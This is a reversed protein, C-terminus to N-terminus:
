AVVCQERLRAIESDELGLEQSLVEDTHEGLLPPRVLPVASEPLRISPSMLTVEGAEPHSVTQFFGRTRLHPDTFIETTDFIASVPVDKTALEHMVQYKDRAMTWEEIEDRLAAANATRDRGTAFRPDDALQPKEIGVCLSDWMRTTAVHIYVYDNPGGPACPYMGTPAGGESGRRSIPTGSGWQTVPRTKMFMLMAEQMSMDIMQGIGDRQQQVFAATIALATQFGTGTDAFTGGPQTPPGSASGTVSFVGAAAQALPDFVKYDSYPGTLGFGKIRAYIISPNVAKLAEYGIDLKEIVGPGFNEVMVNFNPAMKLLLERGERKALDIVFSRKNANYNLFYQSDHPGRRFAQRGPDGAPSEIKVVDAGLWALAQTCSTGAEYQTMDLVRMGHLAATM